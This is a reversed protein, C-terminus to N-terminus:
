EKWKYSAILCLNKYAKDFDKKELGLWGTIMDGNKLNLSELYKETKEIEKLLTEKIKNQQEETIEIVEIFESLDLNDEEGNEKHGFINMKSADYATRWTSEKIFDALSKLSPFVKKEDYGFWFSYAFYKDKV